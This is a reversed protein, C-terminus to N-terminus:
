TTGYLLNLPFLRAQTAQGPRQSRNEVDKGFNSRVVGDAPVSIVAEDVRNSDNLSTEMHVFYRRDLLRGRSDKTAVVGNGSLAQTLSTLRQQGDLLLYKADTGPTLHVGEIARPKFRVQSNGTKLLMVAGM